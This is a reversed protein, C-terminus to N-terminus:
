LWYYVFNATSRSEVICNVIVRDYLLDGIRSYTQGDKLYYGVGTNELYCDMTSIGGEEMSVRGSYQDHPEQIVIDGFPIYNDWLHGFNVVVPLLNTPSNYGRQSTDKCKYFMATNGCVAIQYINCKM